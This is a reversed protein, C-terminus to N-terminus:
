GAVPRVRTAKTPKLKQSPYGTVEVGRKRLSQALAYKFDESATDFAAKLATVANAGPLRELVMCSDEGLEPHKLLTAIPEIAQSGDSLESIMWLVERRVPIPQDDGLLETLAAITAQRGDAGPAGVTHTIRWMARQAARSVELEGTAVVQALQKLPEPGLEGARVWAQTRMNEDDSQIAAILAPVTLKDNVKHDELAPFAQEDSTPDL